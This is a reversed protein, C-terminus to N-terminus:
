LEKFKVPYKSLYDFVGELKAFKIYNGETDLVKIMEIIIKPEGNIKEFRYKVIELSGIKKNEMDNLKKYHECSKIIRYLAEIDDKYKLVRRFEVSKGRGSKLEKTQM